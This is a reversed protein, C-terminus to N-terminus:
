LICTRRLSFAFIRSSTAVSPILTQSSNENPYESLNERDELSHNADHKVTPSAVKTM